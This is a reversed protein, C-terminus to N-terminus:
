NYLERWSVVGMYGSFAPLSNLPPVDGSSFDGRMNMTGDANVYGTMCPTGNSNFTGRSPDSNNGGRIIVVGNFGTKNSGLDFNGNEIVLVGKFPDSTSCNANGSSLQWAVINSSNYSSFRYFVVTSPNSNPPWTTINPSSTPVERYHDYGTAAEDAKAKARLIEIDDPDAATNFPFAIKQSPLLTSAADYNPVVKPTTNSGFSRTGAAVNTPTSGQPNLIGQAGIGGRASTRATQNFDNPYSTSDLTAAWKGFGKDVDPGISFSGSVDARGMAFISTGNLSTNGAIDLNNRTFYAAPVSVGPYLKFVAEIKRKATGATSQSSVRFLGPTPADAEITVLVSGDDSNITWGGKSKSWQVDDLLLGDYFFPKPQRDLQQRGARIGSDALEFAKQGRNVEVVTSLDGVVFTLLGAGMVGVLAMTIIALAMTMGSEDKVFRSIM